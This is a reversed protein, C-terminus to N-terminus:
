WFVPLINTFTTFAVIVASFVVCVGRVVITWARVIGSWLSVSPAPTPVFALVLKRRCLPCSPEQLCEFWRTVCHDHYAHMCPLMTVSEGPTYDEACIPCSSDFRALFAEDVRVRPLHPLIDFASPHDSIVQAVSQLSIPDTVRRLEQLNEAIPPQTATDPTEDTFNRSFFASHEMLLDVICVAIARKLYGHDRHRGAYVTFDSNVNTQEMLRALTTREAEHHNYLDLLEPLTQASELSIEPPFSNDLLINQGGLRSTDTGNLAQLPTSDAM